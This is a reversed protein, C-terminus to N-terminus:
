NPRIQATRDVEWCSVRHTASEKLAELRPTEKRCRDTVLPCRTNFACGQPPNLPSPLEGILPIRKRARELKPDPIPVASVLAQTYPHRPSAYLEARDAMEVIKGLYMVAIRDSIYKVVALNHSIFVMSLGLTRQIEKLLNLIQAQVSVDLSSVPEDAIIIKPDLILARAIAIRQRQGGSFEHPYKKSAKFNLGVLDLSRRIKDNLQQGNLKQHARLPEALIDFVTMRPDLSAYPDQFIMQIRTRAQRLQDGKLQLFDVGQIEVSGSTPHILRIIARGLSSKGCGSEGVLGLIEGQKLELSVGDVAKLTKKPQFSLMKGRVPYHVKLDNVKAIVGPQATEM